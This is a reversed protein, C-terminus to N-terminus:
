VTIRVIREGMFYAAVYVILCISMVTIGLVNHYLVGMFGAAELRLYAIILLPIVCMIKQEMKKGSLLVFIEAETENKEQMMRATDDIVSRMRGSNQRAISFIQAFEHIDDIGSRNGLDKLCIELTEGHAQKVAIQRLETVVPAGKGYIREMDVAAEGFAHEASMGANTKGAIVAILALFQEKLIRQRRERFAGRRYRCYPILGIWAFAFVTMSDFFLFSLSANLILYEGVIRLWEGPSFYYRDYNM